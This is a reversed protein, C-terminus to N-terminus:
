HTGCSTFLTMRTSGSWNFVLSFTGLSIFTGPDDVTSYALQYNQGARNASWGAITQIQSVDYGLTNVSSDFPYTSTWTGDLDFATGPNTAAAGTAGDNLADASTV